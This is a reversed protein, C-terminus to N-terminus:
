LSVHVNCKCEHSNICTYRVKVSNVNILLSNMKITLMILDANDTYVSYICVRTNTHVHIGVCTCGGCVSLDYTYQM